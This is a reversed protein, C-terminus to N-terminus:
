KEKKEQIFTFVSRGIVKHKKNVIPVIFLNDKTFKVGIIEWKADLALESIRNTLDHFESFDFFEHRMIRDVKELVEQLSLDDLL